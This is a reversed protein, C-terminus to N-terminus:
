PLMLVPPKYTHCSLGKAQSEDEQQHPSLRPRKARTWSFWLLFLIPLHPEAPQHSLAPRATGEEGDGAPELLRGCGMARARSIIERTNDFPKHFDTEQTLNWCAFSLLIRFFLFTTSSTLKDNLFSCSDFGLSKRGFGVSFVNASFQPSLSAPGFSDTQTNDAKKKSLFELYKSSLPRSGPIETKPLETKQPNQGLIGPHSPRESGGCGAGRAWQAPLHVPRCKISM